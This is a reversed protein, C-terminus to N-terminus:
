NACQFTDSSCLRTRAAAQQGLFATILRLTAKATVCDRDLLPNLEVFEASVIQASNALGEIAVLGEALTVGAAAPTGVGPMEQPDLGDIDFSLHIGDCDSLYELSQEIVAKMGLRRIDEMTYVRICNEAIFVAEGPDIDRAGIYVIHEPKVKGTYGGISILESNGIGLSASLPMGHVNGSPTTDPTNIDTHADFWIVGLNTYHQAVGAITGIAISHDGGLILPFRNEKIVNSVQGALKECASVIPQLNKVNQETQRFQGTSSMTMNGLDVVDQQAKLAEMLGVFRLADPGLNTGYRSQGLWMPAGIVSIGNRM